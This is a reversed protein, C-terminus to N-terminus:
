PINSKDSQTERRVLTLGDVGDGLKDDQWDRRDEGDQVLEVEEFDSRKREVGKDGDDWVLKMEELDSRGMGEEGFSVWRLRELLVAWLELIFFDASLVESSAIGTFNHLMEEFGDTHM